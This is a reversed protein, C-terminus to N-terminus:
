CFFDEEGLGARPVESGRLQRQRQRRSCRQRRGSQQRRGRSIINSAISNPLSTMCFITQLVLDIIKTVTIVIGQLVILFFFFRYCFFPWAFTRPTKKGGWNTVALSWQWNWLVTGDLTGSSCHSSCYAFTCSTYVALLHAFLSRCPHWVEYTGVHALPLGSIRLHSHSCHAYQPLLTYEAYEFSVPTFSWFRKSSMSLSEGFIESNLLEFNGSPSSIVATSGRLRLHNEIHFRIWLSAHAM